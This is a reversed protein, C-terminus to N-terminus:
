SFSMKKSSTTKWTKAPSLGQAWSDVLWSIAYNRRNAPATFTTIATPISTRMSVAPWYLPFIMAWVILIAPMWGPQFDLAAKRRNAPSLTATMQLMYKKLRVAMTSTQAPLPRFIPTSPSHTCLTKDAIPPPNVFIVRSWTPSKEGIRTRGGKILRDTRRDTHRNRKKVTSKKLDFSACLLFLVDSNFKFNFSCSAPDNVCCLKWMVCVTRGDLACLLAHVVFVCSVHLDVQVGIWYVCLLVICLLCVLSMRIFKFLWHLANMVVCVRSVHSHVQVILEICEYCCMCLLCVLSMRILKFM